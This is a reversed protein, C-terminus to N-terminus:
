VRIGCATPGDQFGQAFSTQRERTTGHDRDEGEASGILPFLAEIDEIDDPYELWHQEDTFKTWAGALCDAQNEYRISQDTTRPPPVNMVNQIHHGFEHAIGVAPGADGTKTYFEWLTDQGVYVANDNPCYEYSKSTYLANRGDSDLCGERGSVGGPVYYVRPVAMGPWTTQIWKEVMPVVADVYQDMTEYQFQGELSRSSSPDPDAGTSAPPSDGGAYPDEDSPLICGMLLLGFVSLAVATVAPKSKTM